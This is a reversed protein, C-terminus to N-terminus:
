SVIKMPRPECEGSMPCHTCDETVTQDIAEWPVQEFGLKEYFGVSSGRAVLRLEGERSLADRVLETGVGYGRWPAYVVVPNM